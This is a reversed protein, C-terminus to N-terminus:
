NSGSTPTRDPPKISDKLKEAMTNIVNGLFGMRRDLEQRDGTEWYEAEDKVEFNEVFPALERLFEVVQVHIDPGAFQTKCFRWFYGDELVLVAVSESDPHPHMIFGNVPGNSEFTKGDRVYIWPFEGDRVTTVESGWRKAWKLALKELKPDRINRITGSYYLTVGM